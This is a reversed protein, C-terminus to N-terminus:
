LNDINSFINCQIYIAYFISYLEESVLNAKQKFSLIMRNWKSENTKM